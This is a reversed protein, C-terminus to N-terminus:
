VVANSRLFAKVYANNRFEEHVERVLAVFDVKGGDIWRQHIVEWLERGTSAYSPLADAPQRALECM